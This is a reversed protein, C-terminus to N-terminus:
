LAYSVKLRWQRPELVKYHIDEVGGAPEGPLRSAYFYDIDHDTSDFLNLVDVQVQLNGRGWGLSAHAVTSGDSEVSDDEILPYSSFHRVHMSGFWGNPAQATVGASAVFPLAGPIENGDPSSDSFEADTWALDAELTWIDSLVFFNNFEIGYRRSPRSAETNGADGVFLLESDLKLYWLSLSTNWRDVPQSKIGVEAGTSRVLPDVRDVANNTVPDVTITTGRADNSHFGRGVSVYLESASSLSYAVSAKPSIISDNAEGSNLPSDSNVDFAYYDGRLGLTTRWRESVQWALEYFLAVSSQDVSDQRTTAFRQRAVTRYLGVEDIDDHRFELGVNQRFQEQGGSSWNQKWYGGFIRRKDRQEFQDGNVPDDIFYTFNSWLQMDYSIVYAGWSRALSDGQHRFQTSLSSRRSNGGLSDDISGFESIIKQDVARQPIQDASDWDNDYFMASVSWQLGQSDDGSLRLLGNLKQANGEVDEWPGDFYQSEIAAFLHQNAIDVGGMALLRNYSDEGVELQLRNVPAKRYTSIHVGGASSFDGLEAHYPGKVYRLNAIVEPILFNVDTYGQGHAHTRMNVPMGDIWTAFDTGHDLNFGRLFMQNSKGSGSHQTVILGPIAELIDGPRQIPRLALDLQSITGESASRAIGLLDGRRGEVFVEEIHQNAMALQAGVICIFFMSFRALTRERITLHPPM